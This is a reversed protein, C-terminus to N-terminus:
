HIKIETIDVVATEFGALELQTNQASLQNSILDVETTDLSAVDALTAGTLVIVNYDGGRSQLSAYEVPNVKEMTFVQQAVAPDLDASASSFNVYPKFEYGLAQAQAEVDGSEKVAAIFTEARESLGAALKERELRAQIGSKVTEFPKVSEEVYEKKRVVVARKNSLELVDSNYGESLVEHSFAADRIAKEKAIGPGFSKAFLPSTAVELGLVAAPEGLDQANYVVEKLLELKEVYLEEAQVNRLTSEIALKREDFTPPQSEVKKVLKIFHTGLDSSVAASVAGEELAYVADNFEDSYTEPDHVGLDGDLPLSFKDDSYEKVLATFEEGAALKDAVQQVKDDHVSSDSPDILIHAIQYETSASFLSLEKEFEERVVLEDIEVDKALEDVSLDIYSVSIKSPEKYLSQNQDYYAQLEEESVTISEKVLAQSITVVDFTRTQQSLGMLQAVESETAFASGNIGDNLQSLIMDSSLAAKYTAPTYGVNALVRRYAQPNFQGEIYFQEQNLITRNLEADSIAMGSNSLTDVLAARRTLQDLVPGRLNEDKLFDASEDVGDQSLLRQKQMYISRRLEANSITTSGVTAADSGAVSGLFSNGVGTLVMPVIFLLVVVFVVVTNKMNERFSQIM